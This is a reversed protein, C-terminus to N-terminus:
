GLARKGYYINLYTIHDSIRGSTLYHCTQKKGTPSGLESEAQSKHYRERELQTLQAFSCSLSTTSSARHPLCTTGKSLPLSCLLLTIKPLHIIKTVQIVLCIVVVSIFWAIWKPPLYACSKGKSELPCHRIM